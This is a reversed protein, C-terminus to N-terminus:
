IISDNDDQLEKGRELCRCLLLLSLALTLSFLPIDVSFQSSRLLSITCLQLLNACVSTGVTWGVVRTCGSVTRRCLDVSEQTFSAGTLAAALEGGWALTLAALFDPVAALILRLSLIAVTIWGEATMPDNGALIEEVGTLLEALCGAGTGVAVVLSCLYFLPRFLVAAGAGEERQMKALLQLAGWAVVLSLVTTFTVLVVMGSLQSELKSPNVAFWGMVLLLPVSLYLLADAASYADESYRHSAYWILLLIPSVGVLLLLTWALFNGAKGSLSLWRLGEGFLAFPAGLAGVIEGATFYWGLFALAAGAFASALLTQYRKM